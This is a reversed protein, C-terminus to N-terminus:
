KLIPKCNQCQNECKYDQYNFELRHCFNFDIKSKSQNERVKNIILEILGHQLRLEKCAIKLEKETIQRNNM